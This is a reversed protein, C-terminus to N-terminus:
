AARDSATCFLALKNGLPDRLYGVFFNKSYQARFGPAGEDTGGAAIGAGHLARVQAHSPVRFAIMSGNGVTAERGDYPKKVYVAGPGNFRDPSDPLTYAVGDKQESKEYGLPVLVATYFRASRPIDNAGITLYSLM